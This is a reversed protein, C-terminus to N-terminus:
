ESPHKDYDFSENLIKVLEKVESQTLQAYDRGTTIQIMSGYGSGGFFRNVNLTDNSKSLQIAALQTSM